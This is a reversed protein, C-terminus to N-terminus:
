IRDFLDNAYGAFIVAGGFTHIRWIKDPCTEDIQDPYQSLAIQSAEHQDPNADSLRGRGTKHGSHCSFDDVDILIIHKDSSQLFYYVYTRM